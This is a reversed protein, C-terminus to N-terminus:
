FLGTNLRLYDKSMFCKTGYFHLLIILLNIDVLIKDLGLVNAKIDDSLPADVSSFQLISFEKFGILPLYKLEQFIYNYGIECLFKIKQLKM